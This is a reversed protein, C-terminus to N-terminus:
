DCVENNTWYRPDFSYKMLKRLFDYHGYQISDYYATNDYRDKAYVIHPVQNVLVFLVNSHNYIAAYHVPTKGM